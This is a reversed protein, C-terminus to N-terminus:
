SHLNTQPNQPLVHSQPGNRELDRIADLMQCHYDKHSRIIQLQEVNWPYAQVNGAQMVVKYVAFIIDRVQTYESLTM